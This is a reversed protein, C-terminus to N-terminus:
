KLNGKLNLSARISSLGKGIHDNVNRAVMENATFVANRVALANSSGHCIITVGNVGLLPAGGYQSYDFTKKLRRLFPTMLGAGLRSFINTSVQTKFKGFIFSKMSEAFKLLVNGVFGDCIIVDAKGTLVDRGEVNGIFNLGNEMMRKHAEVTLENGKNSEEGISLLAVRPNKVDVMCSFFIAGMHAFELLNGVKCDANAGVDLVICPYDTSTPFAAAIAPRTVGEMRGLNHIASAMIAGTNGTSVVADVEGAKLLKHAIVLSSQTKRFGEKPADDMAIVDAANRVSVKDTMSGLDSVLDSLEERPGIFVMETDADPFDVLFQHAGALVVQPGLDGGMADVAIRISM